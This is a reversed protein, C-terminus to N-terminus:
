SLSTTPATWKHPPPYAYRAITGSVWGIAWGALVLLFTHLNDPKTAAVIGAVAALVVGVGISYAWYNRFRLLMNSDEHHRRRRLLVVEDEPTGACQPAIPVSLQELFLTYARTALLARVPAEASRNRVDRVPGV